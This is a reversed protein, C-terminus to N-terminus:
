SACIPTRACTSPMAVAAPAAPGEAAPQECLWARAMAMALSYQGLGSPGALLWAHGRQSLLQRAQDVIWPPLKSPNM